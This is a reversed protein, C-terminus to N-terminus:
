PSLINFHPKTNRSIFFYDKLLLELSLTALYSIAVRSGEVNDVEKM